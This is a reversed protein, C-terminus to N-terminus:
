ALGDSGERAQAVVGELLRVAEAISTVAEAPLIVRSAASKLGLERYFASKEEPSSFRAAFRERARQTRRQNPTLVAGSM